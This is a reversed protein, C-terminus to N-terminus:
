LNETQIETLDSILFVKLLLNFGSFKIDISSTGGFAFQLNRQPFLIELLNSQNCKCTSFAFLENVAAIPRDEQKFFIVGDQHVNNQVEIMMPVLPRKTTRTMSTDSTQKNMSTPLAQKTMSTESTPKTSSTESSQKTKSTGLTQKTATTELPNTSKKATNRVVPAARTKPKLIFHFVSNWM